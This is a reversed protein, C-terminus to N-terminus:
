IDCNQTKRVSGVRSCHRQVYGAMTVTDMCSDDVCTDGADGAGDDDDPKVCLQNGPNSWLVVERCPNMSCYLWTYLEM